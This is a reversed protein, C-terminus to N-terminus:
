YSQTQILDLYVYLVLVEIVAICIKPAKGNNM